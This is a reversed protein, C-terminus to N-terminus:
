AAREAVESVRVVLCNEASDWASPTGLQDCVWTMKGAIRRAEAPDARRARFDSILTPYLLIERVAGDQFDLIFAFSEDNREIEDM